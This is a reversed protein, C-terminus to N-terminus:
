DIKGNFVEAAPGTMYVHNDAKAWEIELDGGLLHVTIKQDTLGNLVGAVGVASAGSGCALTLGDGREWVRMIVEQRNIVQVFEVNIRKPFKSHHEFLPGLHHLDYKEVDDVFIVCHPNGVSVLTVLYKRGEVELEQKVVKEANFLWDKTKLKPEGMDVKILNGQIEPKVIGGLTYFVLKKKKTLEHEYVYKALCRIGNGCTEAESGDGNFFRMKFDAEKTNLIYLIQDAGIGFHRDAIKKSFDGLDKPLKEKIANIVVFDNGLGHMKTFEIQM